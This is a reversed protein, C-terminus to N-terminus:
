GVWEKIHSPAIAKYRRRSFPMFWYDVAALLNGYQGQTLLKLGKYFLFGLFLGLVWSFFFGVVFLPGLFVCLEAVTWRIFKEPENLFGPVLPLTKESQNNMDM